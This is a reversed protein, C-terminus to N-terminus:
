STVDKDNIEDADDIQTVARQWSAIYAKFDKRTEEDFLADGSFVAADINECADKLWKNM